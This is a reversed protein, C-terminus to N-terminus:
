PEYDEKEAVPFGFSENRTKQQPSHPNHVM